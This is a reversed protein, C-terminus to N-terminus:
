VQEPESTLAGFTLVPLGALRRVTEAFADVGKRRNFRYEFEALYRHLHKISVKHFSGILGRKLLSFASEVTNTYVDGRVYEKMSHVVTEHKRRQDEPIGYKYITNDDTMIREVDPSVHTEIIPRIQQGRVSGKGVHRFRVRGGREVMGVVADKPKLVDRNKKRITKGGIYTEDIEVIGGLQPIDGEAMAERIRHNLYWATKYGGIGLDRQLQKASIGKKANLILAIAQFWVILPLHTDHFITGSTPSFQNRCTPEQCIYFWRRRNAKDAKREASRRKRKLDVPREYREIKDNGCAPCRVVGDPWRMGKLYQLCQEDDAFKAYAERINM